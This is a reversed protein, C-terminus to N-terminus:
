IVHTEYHTDVYEKSQSLVRCSHYTVDNFIITSGLLTVLLHQTLVLTVSSQAAVILRCSCGADCSIPCTYM